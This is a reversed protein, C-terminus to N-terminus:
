YVLCDLNNALSFFEEKFTHQGPESFVGRLASTVMVQKPNSKVGRAIMCDHAGKVIVIVGKPNLAEMIIDALGSTYSEQLIPQAAYLEVVRSFKSIGCFKGNPIYGTWVHYRVNEFHHPCISYVIAPNTTIILQDTEHNNMCPFVKSLMQKCIEESNIGRCRELIMMKAIRKPTERFNEDEYKLGYALNLAKLIKIYASSIMQMAMLQKDNISYYTSSVVDSFDDSYEDTVENSPIGLSNVQEDTM